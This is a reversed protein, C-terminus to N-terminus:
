PLEKLNDRDILIHIANISNIPTDQMPYQDHQVIRAARTMGAKFADLQIQKIRGVTIKLVHSTDYPKEIKHELWLFKEWEEATKM